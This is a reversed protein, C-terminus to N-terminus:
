RISISVTQEVTSSPDLGIYLPVADGVPADPSLQANIQVLGPVTQPAGGYYTVTAPYYPADCSGDSDLRVYATNKFASPSTGTIENDTGLPNPLGGGTAYISVTSNPAAPNSPSNVSGDQNIVAAQGTGDPGFSFVGLRTDFVPLTIANSPAGNYQVQVSVTSQGAIDYPVIASSQAGSAYIMPAPEGNFLIQTGGLATPIQGNASAQLKVLNAPGM